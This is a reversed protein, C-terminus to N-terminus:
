SWTVVVHDNVNAHDHVHDIEHDNVPFTSTPTTSGVTASSIRAAARPISGGDIM